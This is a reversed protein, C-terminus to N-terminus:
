SGVGEAPQNILNLQMGTERESTRSTRGNVNSALRAAKSRRHKRVSLVPLRTGALHPHCQHGQLSHMHQM